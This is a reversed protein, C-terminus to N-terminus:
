KNIYDGGFYIIQHIDNQSIANFIAYDNDISKRM